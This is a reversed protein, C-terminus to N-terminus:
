LLVHSLRLWWFTLLLSGRLVGAGELLWFRSFLPPPLLSACSCNGPVGQQPWWARREGAAGRGQQVAGHERGGRAKGASGSYLREICM